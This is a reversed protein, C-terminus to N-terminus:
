HFPVGGVGSGLAFQCYLQENQRSWCHAALDCLIFPCANEDAVTGRRALYILIINYALCGFNPQNNSWANGLMGDCLCAGPIRSVRM